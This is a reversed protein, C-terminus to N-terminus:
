EFAAVSRNQRAIAARVYPNQIEDRDTGNPKTRNRDDYKGELISTVSDPKLLFDINAGAWSGAEGRLFASKPVREIAQQIAQLGDSRLRAQCAKRRKGQMKSCSPLGNAKAMANWIVAVADCDDPARATPSANAEEVIITRSPKDAAAAPTHTTGQPACDRRPAVEAPTHGQMKPEFNPHITYLVGKGPREVRTMHGASVLEKIVGQVTREGKSCKKTLSAMSPWCVGEDNASDALALLVIKQSDPLDLSWVLSMVKVSM